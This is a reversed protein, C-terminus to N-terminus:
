VCPQKAAKPRHRPNRGDKNTMPTLWASTLWRTTVSMHSVIISLCSQCTQPFVLLPSVEAKQPAAHKRRAHMGRNSVCVKQSYGHVMISLWCKQKASERPLSLATLTQRALAQLSRTWASHVAGSKSTSLISFIAVIWPKQPRHSGHYPAFSTAKRLRSGGTQPSFFIAHKLGHVECCPHVHDQATRLCQLASSSAHATRSDVFIGPSLMKKAPFLMTRVHPHVHPHWQTNKNM